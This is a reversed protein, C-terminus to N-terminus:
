WGRGCCKKFKKGSGCVCKSNVPQKKMPGIPAPRAGVAKHCRQFYDNVDEKDDISPFKVITKDGSGPKNSKRIFGYYQHRMRESKQFDTEKPVKPESSSSSSSSESDEVIQEALIEPESCEPEIGTLGKRAIYEEKTEKNM